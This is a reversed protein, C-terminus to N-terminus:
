HGWFPSWRPRPKYTVKDATREVEEIPSCTACSVKIAATAAHQARMDRGWQSMYCSQGCDMCAVVTLGPEWIVEGVRRVRILVTDYEDETSM